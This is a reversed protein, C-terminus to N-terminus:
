TASMRDFFGCGIMQDAHREAMVCFMEDGRDTRGVIMSAIVAMLLGSAGGLAYDFAVDEDPVDIGRGRLSRVYRSTLELEVARRDSPVLGAGLFYALDAPGHGLAVTQWDVVTLPRAPASGFLMNDLRYDGHVLTLPTRFSTFWRALLPGFRAGVALVEDDLRSRYRDVFGPFVMDYLGATEVGREATRPSVWDLDLVTADDWRPGHLGALADVALMAQDVSCGTIQDGQVAPAIDEMLLLFRNNELDEYQALIRPTPIDVTHQLDRYFGVEKVYSGTAAATERSTLDASPFKGVVSRPGDIGDPWTLAYRVNEGVQGTGISRQEVLPTADIGLAQALWEPTVEHQEPFCDVSADQHDPRRRDM